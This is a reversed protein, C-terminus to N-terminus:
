KCPAPCANLLQQLQGAQLREPDGNRLRVGALVRLPQRVGDQNSGTIFCRDLRTLEPNPAIAHATCPETACM